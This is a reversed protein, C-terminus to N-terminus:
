RAHGGTDQPGAALGVNPSRATARASRLELAMRSARAWLITEAISGGPPGKKHPIEVYPRGEAECRKRRNELIRELISPQGNGVPPKPELRHLRKSIATLSMQSGMVM